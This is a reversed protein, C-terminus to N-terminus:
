KPHFVPQPVFSGPEHRTGNPREYNDPGAPHHKGNVAARIEHMLREVDVDSHSTAFMNMSM